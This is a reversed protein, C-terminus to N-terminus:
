HKCDHNHEKMHNLADFFISAVHTDVLSYQNSKGDRTMDVLHADRLIKLHHSVLPQSTDGLFEVLSNVDSPSQALRNIIAVRTPNSLAKFLEVVADVVAPDEATIPMSTTENMVGDTDNM